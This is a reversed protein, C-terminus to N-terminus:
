FAFEMFTVQGSDYGFAIISGHMAVHSSRHDFPFLLINEMGRSVWLDKIFVYHPLDPRSVAASDSHFTHYLPGRNTQLFTGDNSFSLTRVVVGVELRQLVAGSGADWLKVTGDDDASALLKGDPSVAVATFGVLKDELTQLAIGRTLDWLRITEDSALALKKSDPSFTIAIDHGLHGKLTQLAAGTAADWLRIIGDNSASALQKSDPSFAVARVWASHGELRQLEVGTAVDWLRVTQDSTSALKKSDPSFAIATVYGHGYITKLVAGKAPDWLKILNDWSTSALQKGDPSFVIANVYSSHGELTQLLANWNNEVKPLRRVWRPVYDKFQERVKSM